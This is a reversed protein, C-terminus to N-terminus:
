IGELSLLVWVLAVLDSATGDWSGDTTIECGILDGANFKALGRAVAGYGSSATGVTQTTDADETGGVTAGITFSGATGATDLAWSVAVIEGDFPMVYGDVLSAVADVAMLPLQANTQSADVADESFMLPVVQGKAIYREVQM